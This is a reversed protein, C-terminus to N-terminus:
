GDCLEMLTSQLVGSLDKEEVPMDPALLEGLERSLQKQMGPNALAKVLLAAGAKVGGRPDGKPVGQVRPGPFSNEPGIEPAAPPIGLDARGGLSYIRGPFSGAYTKFWATYIGHSGSSGITHERIFNQSYLPRFRSACRELTKEFAHPRAHTKLDRHTFDLGAIYVRGATLYLALDLASASVTGRQPFSLFPIHFAGLLLEQWLSGDCLVLAPWPEIQSPLAATFGAAIIPHPFPQDAGRGSGAAAVAGQPPIKCPEVPAKGPFERCSEFLHFLAWEGGDTTIVMDPLIRRHLLAPVASSVAMVLPGGPLDKWEAIHDLVDELSPGAACVVLPREGGRVKLPNGLIGLNRLANKVWRRGFNRVTIRNAAIRKLCEVTRGALELCASGYANISPRWEILKVGSGETGTLLDELFPELERGCGPYWCLDGKTLFGAASLDKQGGYFASCHLTIIRSGPFQKQLAAELYGLGPEILIFWGCSKELGLSGIYKEAEGAPNYRSHLTTNGAYVTYGNQVPVLREIM